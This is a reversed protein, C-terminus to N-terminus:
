QACAAAIDNHGHTVTDPHVFASPAEAPFSAGMGMPVIGGTNLRSGFSTQDSQEYQRTINYWMEQPIFIISQLNWGVPSLAANEYIFIQFSTIAALRGAM